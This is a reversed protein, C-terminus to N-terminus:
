ARPAPRGAARRLSEFVGCLRADAFFTAELNRRRVSQTWSHGSSENREKQKTGCMISSAALKKKRISHGGSLTAITIAVRELVDRLKVGM